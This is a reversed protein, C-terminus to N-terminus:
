SHTYSEVSSRMCKPNMSLLFALHELEPKFFASDHIREVGTMLGKSWSTPHDLVETKHPIWGMFWCFRFTNTRFHINFTRGVFRLVVTKDELLSTWIGPILASNGDDHLVKTRQIGIAGKPLPRCLSQCPLPLSRSSGYDSAAKLQNRALSAATGCPLSYFINCLIWESITRSAGSEFKATTVLKKDSAPPM